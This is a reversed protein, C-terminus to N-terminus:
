KECFPVLKEDLMITMIMILLHKFKQCYCLASTNASEFGVSNVAVKDLEIAGHLLVEMIMISWISSNRPNPSLIQLKLDLLIAEHFM